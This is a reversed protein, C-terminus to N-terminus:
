AFMSLFGGYFSGHLLIYPVRCQEYLCGVVFKFKLFYVFAFSLYQVVQAALQRIIIVLKFGTGLACTHTYKVTCIVFNCSCVVNGFGRKIGCEAHIWRSGPQQFDQHKCQKHGTLYCCVASWPSLGSVPTPCAKGLCRCM